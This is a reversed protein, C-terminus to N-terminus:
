VEESGYIGASSLIKKFEELKCDKPTTYSLERNLMRYKGRAFDHCALIDVAQYGPLENVFETARLFFDRNDNFGGVLPIRIVINARSEALKILNALITENRVGTFREHINSDLHKIDYLFLDTIELIKDFSEWSTYGCTDVATRVNSKKCLHLIVKLFDIQRMPEGGSFTVGGCSEEFFVRDRMIADMIQEPSVHQGLMERAATCCADACAGCMICGSSDLEDLPCAELCAGCNICRSSHFVMQAKSSISEPNQCWVCSLPCGKLFFTTRIGPGDHISFRKVDFVIGRNM